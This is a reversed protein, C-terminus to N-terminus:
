ERSQVKLKFLQLSTINISKINAIFKDEEINKAQIRAVTNVTQKGVKDSKGLLEKWKM